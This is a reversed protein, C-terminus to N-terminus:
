EVDFESEDDEPLWLVSRDDEDDVTETSSSSQTASEVDGM